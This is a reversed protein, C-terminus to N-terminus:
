RGPGRPAPTAREIPKWGKIVEEHIPPATPPTGKFVEIGHEESCVYRPKDPFLTGISPGQMRFYGSAPPPETPTAGTTAPEVPGAFGTEEKGCFVCRFTEKDM